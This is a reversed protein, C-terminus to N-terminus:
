EDEQEIVAIPFAGSEINEDDGFLSVYETRAELTLDGFYIEMTSM